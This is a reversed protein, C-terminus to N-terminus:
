LNINTDFDININENIYGIPNCLFPIDNIKVNSLTHTHGYIWCKIKDKKMEILNDLDSYFWQNYQIMNPTNYKENILKKSPLHHTIVICNNNNNLTKELFEICNKNLQNCVLYNFNPICNVDNIKNVPNTIKTWLTTGIFCYDLYYEYNDHLFSINDFKQFYKNLFINTEDMNYTMNYYEHNGAIVFTKKFNESIYIMFMDYSIHYPNGIDGALVLIEDNGPSIQTLFQKINQPKIFELHLDSFYRIKMKYYYNITHKIIIIKM